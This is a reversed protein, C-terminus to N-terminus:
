SGRKKEFGLIQSVVYGIFAFFIAFAVFLLSPPLALGAGTYDCHICFGDIIFLTLAMACLQMQM